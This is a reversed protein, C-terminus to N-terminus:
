VCPTVEIDYGGVEDNASVKIGHEPYETFLGVEPDGEPLVVTFYATGTRWDKDPNFAPNSASIFGAVVSMRKVGTFRLLAEYADAAAYFTDLLKRDRMSPINKYGNAISQLDFVFDSLMSQAGIRIHHMQRRGGGHHTPHGAGRWGHPLGHEVLEAYVTARARETAHSRYNPEKRGVYRNEYFAKRPANQNIERASAALCLYPSESYTLLRSYPMNAQDIRHALYVPSTEVSDDDPLWNVWSHVCVDAAAGLNWMHHSPKDPSQYKVLARSTAPAIYGYSISLSGHEEVLPELVYECLARINSMKLPLEPDYPDLMNPIGQTYVSHCGLFDSLLFHKSLRVEIPNM